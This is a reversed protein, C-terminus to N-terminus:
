KQYRHFLPSPPGWLWVEPEPCFYPAPHAGCDCQLNQVFIPPQTPAAVLSWTRSLFLPSPPGWLWVAPEACFYPAPHAGCDCQLNQVFIPPQTPGVIVSCTRSLFLPSPPGWFWVAPEPCFDTKGAMFPIRACTLFNKDEEFRGLSRFKATQVSRLTFVSGYCPHKVSLKYYIQRCVHDPFFTFYFTRWHQLLSIPASDGCHAKGTAIVVNHKGLQM